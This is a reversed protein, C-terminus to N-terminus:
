GLFLPYWLNVLQRSSILKDLAAQKWNLVGEGGLKSDSGSEGEM